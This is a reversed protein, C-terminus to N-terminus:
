VFLNSVQLEVGFFVGTIPDFSHPTLNGVYRIVGNLWQMKYEVYVHNGNSLDSAMELAEPDKLALLRDENSELALLLEAARRSLLELLVKDLLTDILTGMRVVPLFDTDNRKLNVNFRQKDIYCIEGAKIYGNPSPPNATIIFYINKDASAMQQFHRKSFLSEPQCWHKWHPCPGITNSYTVQESGRLLAYEM